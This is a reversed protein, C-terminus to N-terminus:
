KRPVIYDGSRVADRAQTIRVVSSYPSVGIVVAEGIATLPIGGQRLDRYVTFRAGPTAGLDSGRNILMFDGTGGSARLREGHMIRGLADFNLDGPQRGCRCQRATGAARVTGPLRRRFHGHLRARDAIATTENVAVIRLWGATAIAHAAGPGHEGPWEARRVFFRQNTQLERSTGGDIVLLDGSGYIARPVTDQAGVVHLADSPPLDLSAPMACAAATLPPAGVEEVPEAGARAAVVIVPCVVLALVLM